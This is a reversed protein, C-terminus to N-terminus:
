AIKSKKATHEGIFHRTVAATEQGNFSNINLQTNRLGWLLQINWQMLITNLLRLIPMYFHFDRYM